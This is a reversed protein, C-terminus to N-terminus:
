PAFPKAPFTLDLQVARWRAAEDPRGCGNYLAILRDLAELRRKPMADPAAALERYGNLLYPEAEDYKKRALFCGGVLSEANALLWHGPPLVRRRIALSEILLPQAE